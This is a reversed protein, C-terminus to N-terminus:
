TYPAICTILSKCYYVIVIKISMKSQQNIYTKRVEYGVDIARKYLEDFVKVINEITCLLKGNLFSNKILKMSFRYIHKHSIDSTKEQVLFGAVDRVFMNKLLLM